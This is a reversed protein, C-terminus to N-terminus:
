PYCYLCRFIYRDASDAPGAGRAPRGRGGRGGSNGNAADELARLLSQQFLAVTSDTM